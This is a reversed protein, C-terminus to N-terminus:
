DRRDARHDIEEEEPAAPTPSPVPAPPRAERDRKVRFAPAIHVPPPLASPGSDGTLVESGGGLWQAAMLRWLSRM